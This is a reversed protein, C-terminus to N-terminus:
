VPLKEVNPRGFTLEFMAIVQHGELFTVFMRPDKARPFAAEVLARQRKFKGSPDAASLAYSRLKSDLIKFTGPPRLM